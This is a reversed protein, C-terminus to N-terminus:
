KEVNPIQPIILSVMKSIKYGTARDNKRIIIDGAANEIYTASTAGTKRKANQVSFSGVHKDKPISYVTFIFIVAKENGKGTKRCIKLVWQLDRLWLDVTM